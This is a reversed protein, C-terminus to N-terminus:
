RRMAEKISDSLSVVIEDHNLLKVALPRPTEFGHSKLLRTFEKLSVMKGICYLLQDNMDTIYRNRISRSLEETFLQMEKQLALPDKTLIMM